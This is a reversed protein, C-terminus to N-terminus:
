HDELDRGELYEMVIYPAGSALRGVDLVRAVHESHLKAATRAERLMREVVDDRQALEDRVIKLAVPQELELHMAQFVLGMGGEGLLREIRFKGAILSGERVSPVEDSCEQVGM